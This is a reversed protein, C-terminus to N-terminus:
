APACVPCNSYAADYRIGEAVLRDLNPTKVVPHGYAGTLAATLQDVIVLLVNPRQANHDTNM